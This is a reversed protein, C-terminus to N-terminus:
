KVEMMLAVQELTFWALANKLSTEDDDNFMLFHECEAPTWDGNLCGIGALCESATQGCESATEALLALISQRNADFFERTEHYYIFGHFGCNAGHERVEQLTERLENHDECDLQRRVANKLNKNM